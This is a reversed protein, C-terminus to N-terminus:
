GEVKADDELEIPGNYVERIVIKDLYDHEHKKWYKIALNKEHETFNYLPQEEIRIKKVDIFQEIQTDTYGKLYKEKAM